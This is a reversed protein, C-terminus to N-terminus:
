KQEARAMRGAIFAALMDSGTIGLRLKAWDAARISELPPPAPAPVKNLLVRGSTQQIDQQYIEGGCNCQSNNHHCSM